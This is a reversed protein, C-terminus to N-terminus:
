FPVEEIEDEIAPRRLAPEEHVQRVGLAREYAAWVRDHTERAARYAERRDRDEAFDWTADILAMGAARTQRGLHAVRADLRALRANYADTQM